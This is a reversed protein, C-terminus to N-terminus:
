VCRSFTELMPALFRFICCAFGFPAREETDRKCGRSVLSLMVGATLHRILEHWPTVLGEILVYVPTLLRERQSGLEKVADSM